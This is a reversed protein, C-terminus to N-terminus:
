GQWGIQEGAGGRDVAGDRSRAKDVRYFRKFIHPQAEPPIGRGTDAVEIEYTSGPSTLSVRVAGDAPTYKIANDLLNLLMQRLLGEDGRYLTEVSAAVEVKVGKRTAPVSAACATEAVLEDLYFDTRELPRHGADARALTFMDEVIRRMRRTQADMMAVADRYEGEDRREGALTVEATTHMVSLPTRLKHSADAMLQRQQEFARQQQTFADDLRALLENFTAALQGLEDRPNAVPLREDLNGSGIRRASESMAVVPALSKRALFWGGLGALALAVPVAIYLIGRLAPSRRLLARVRAPLEHLDFPKILYDDAGSDLGTIRDEVADRATLMLIPVASGADRLERCVEFGDRKPLNVDLVVVDYDNISAQYIAEDGDAAIDVAYTQERLGKALMRAADPEDEVLLIRM